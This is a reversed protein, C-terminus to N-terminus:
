TLTVRTDLIGNELLKRSTVEGKDHTIPYNASPGLRGQNCSEDLVQYSSAMLSKPGPRAASSNECASSALDSKQDSGGM